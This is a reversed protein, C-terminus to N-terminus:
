LISGGAQESESPRRWLFQIGYTLRFSYMSQILDISHILNPPIHDVSQVMSRTTGRLRSVFAAAARPWCPLCDIWADLRDDGVAM